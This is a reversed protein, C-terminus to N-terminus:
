RVPWRPRSEARPANALGTVAYQSVDARAACSHLLWLAGQRGCAVAVARVPLAFVKLSRPAV